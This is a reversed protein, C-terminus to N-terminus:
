VFDAELFVQLQYSIMYGPKSVVACIVCHEGGVEEGKCTAQRCNKERRLSRHCTSALSHPTQLLESLCEGDVVTRKRRRCQWHSRVVARVHSARVLLLVGSVM